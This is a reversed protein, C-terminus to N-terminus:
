FDPYPLYTHTLVNSCLLDPLSMSMSYRSVYCGASAAKLMSRLSLLMSMPSDSLGAFKGSSTYTYKVAHIGYQQAVAM